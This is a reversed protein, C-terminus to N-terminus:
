SNYFTGWSDKTNDKEWGDKEDNFQSETFAQTNNIVPRTFYLRRNTNDYLIGDSGDDANSLKPGNIIIPEFNFIGLVQDTILKISGAYDQQDKTDYFDGGIIVADVTGPICRDRIEKLRKNLDRIFEDKKFYLFRTPDQHTLLSINKGTEKDIGTVILGTCNYFGRSFKDEGDITSIVYTDDGANLFHKQDLHHPRENYNVDKGKYDNKFGSGVDLCAIIPNVGKNLHKSLAYEPKPTFNKGENM